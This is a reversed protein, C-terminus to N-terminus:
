VRNSTIMVIGISVKLSDDINISNNKIMFSKPKPYKLLETVGPVFLKIIDDNNTYTSYDYDIDQYHDNDSLIPEFEEVDM